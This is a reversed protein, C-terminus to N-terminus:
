MQQIDLPFVKFKPEAGSLDLEVCCRRAYDERATSRILGEAQIVRGGFLGRDHSNPQLLTDPHMAFRGSALYLDRLVEAIAARECGPTYERGWLVYTFHPRRARMTAFVQKLVPAPELYRQPWTGGFEKFVPKILVTMQALAEAVTSSTRGSFGPAPSGVGHVWSPKPSKPGDM